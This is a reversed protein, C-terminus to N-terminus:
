IFWPQLTHCLGISMRNTISDEKGLSINKFLVWIIANLMPSEARSRTYGLFYLTGMSTCGMVQGLFVMKASYFWWCNVDKDDTNQVADM